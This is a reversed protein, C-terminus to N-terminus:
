IFLRKKTTKTKKKKKENKEEENVGQVVSYINYTHLVATADVRYFIIGSRERQAYHNFPKRRKVFKRKKKEIRIVHYM